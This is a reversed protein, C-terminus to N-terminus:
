SGDFGEVGDVDGSGGAGDVGVVVGSGASGEGGTAAGVGAGVSSPVGGDFGTRSNGHASVSVACGSGDATVLGASRSAIMAVPNGHRTLSFALPM